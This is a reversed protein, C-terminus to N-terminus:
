GGTVNQWEGVLYKDLAAEDFDFGLGPQEHLNLEGNDFSLQRDIIDCLNHVGNGVFFEVYDASPFASVLPAHLDHFWHPCLTVGYASALDAIRRLESIGGCVAADQQLIIAAGADLLEKSRWRGAEIEGTAVSIPTERALRAHNIIDDPSFPEEIWYPNYPEWLRLAGLAAPLDKWANNADLMLVGDPGIADRAAAIRDADEAASVRGVKMKVAKFGKEVYSTMEKHVGEVGKGELYYGGSAYAKVRNSRGGLYKHLPLNAARANRDWLAIDIASLARMVSGVRGHLLSEQYMAGWAGEVLHADMGLVVPGLLDTVAMTALQAARHGPYCFGIGTVGDDGTVRVLTYERQLVTRSSFGTPAPLPISATAAEIKRITTM